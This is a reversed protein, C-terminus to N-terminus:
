ATGKSETEALSETTRTLSAVAGHVAKGAEAARAVGAGTLGGGAGKPSSSTESAPPPATTAGAPSQSGGGGKSILGPAFKGGGAAMATGGTGVIMAAGVAAGAVAGVAAGTSVSGVAAVAPVVLRMVAPLAIVSVLLLVVGDISGIGSTSSTMLEFAAAFCIAAAVKYVVFGILWATVKRFWASGSPTMSAAASLPWVAALVVILASRVLLLGIQILVGLIALGVVVVALSSSNFAATTIEGLSTVSRGTSKTSETLIWSSLADGAGTLLSIGVVGAGGVVVLRLLGHVADVVGDAKKSWVTRGAALILGIVAVVATLWSLDGQILAVAPTGTLKPTPVSLFSTTLYRLLTTEGRVMDDVLGGLVSSAASKAAGTVAGCVHGVGPLSCLGAM